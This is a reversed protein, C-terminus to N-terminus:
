CWNEATHDDLTCQVHVHVKSVLNRQQWYVTYINMAQTELYAYAMFIYGPNLQVGPSKLEVTQNIRVLYVETSTPSYSGLVFNM